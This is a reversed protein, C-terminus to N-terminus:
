TGKLNEGRALGHRVAGVARQAEPCMRNVGLRAGSGADSLAVGCFCSLGCHVGSQLDM